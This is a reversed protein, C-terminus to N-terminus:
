SCDICSEHKMCSAMSLSFRYRTGATSKQECNAMAELRWRWLNVQSGYLMLCRNCYPIRNVHCLILGGCLVWVHPTFSSAYRHHLYVLCWSLFILYLVLAAIKCSLFPFGAFFLFEIEVHPLMILAFFERMKGVSTSTNELNKFFICVFFSEFFRLVPPSYSALGCASGEKSTIPVQYNFGLVGLLFGGATAGAPSALWSGPARLPGLRVFLVIPRDCTPLANGAAICYPLSAEAAPPARSTDRRRSSRRLPPLATLPPPSFFLPARPRLPPQSLRTKIGFYGAQTTTNNERWATEEKKGQASLPQKTKPKFKLEHWKM